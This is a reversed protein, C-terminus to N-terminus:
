IPRKEAKPHSMVEPLGLSQAKRLAFICKVFCQHHNLNRM